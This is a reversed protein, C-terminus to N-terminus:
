RKMKYFTIANGALVKQQDKADLACRIRGISDWRLDNWQNRGNANWRYDTSFMVKEPSAYEFLSATYDNTPIALRDQEADLLSDPGHGIMLDPENNIIHISERHLRAGHNICVRLRHKLAWHIYAIPSNSRYLEHLAKAHPPMSENIEESYWDTHVLVPLDHYRLFENLWSPFADPSSHSAIGHIKLCVLENELLGELCSPDDLFPHVKAAFFLKLAERRKNFTKVFELIHRNFSHYPHAPNDIIKVAGNKKIEKYYRQSADQEPRWLCSTEEGEETQFIHTPTPVIMAKTIGLQQAQAHYTEFDCDPGFATRGLNVQMDVIENVCSEM